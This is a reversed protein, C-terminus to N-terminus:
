REAADRQPMNMILYNRANTTNIDITAGEEILLRVTMDFSLVMARDLHALREAMDMKEPEAEWFFRRLAVCDEFKRNEEIYDALYIIKECIGMNERGTTHWRVASVLEEEAFEPYRHPIVAAGTIAHLTRPASKQSDGIIIGLEHCLQLQKEFTNEKTVDHLLAAARLLPLKSPAYLEGLRVAEKEVGLTHRFRFESIGCSLEARLEDIKKEELMMKRM